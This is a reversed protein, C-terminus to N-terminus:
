EKVLSHVFSHNNLEAKLYYIGAAWNQTDIRLTNECKRNRFIEKGEETYVSLLVPYKSHINFFDHVPNPFIELGSEEFSLEDIADLSDPSYEWVTATQYSSTGLLISDGGCLYAKNGLTFTTASCIATGPFNLKQTWTDTIPNYQWLGNVNVTPAVGIGVYGKGGLVFSCAWRISGGGFDVKATWSDFLTDYEFFDQRVVQLTDIGTGIYGKGNISFGISRFRPTGIFDAKRNWLDTVPNYQWFDRQVPGIGAGTGVYGKLGITFSVASYRFDPFDARQIWTNSGADYEWFDKGSGSNVIGAGIYGKGGIAFGFADMREPGPLDAEQMWSNNSPDYSWLDKFLGANSYGTAVYGKTGIAFSVASSRKGIFDAKQIWQDASACYALCLLLAVLHIKM